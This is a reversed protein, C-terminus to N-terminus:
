HSSFYKIAFFGFGWILSYGLVLLILKRNKEEYGKLAMLCVAAAGTLLFGILLNSTLITGEHFFLFALFIAIFDDLQTFLSTKTLSIDLARWYLFSGLSNIFGIVLFVIFEGLWFNKWSFALTLPFVLVFIIAYHTFFNKVQYQGSTLRKALYPSAINGIIVRLVVPLQWPFM